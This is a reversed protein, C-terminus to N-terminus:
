STQYHIACFPGFDETLAVEEASPLKFTIKDSYITMHFEKARQM